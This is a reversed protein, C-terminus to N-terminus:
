HRLLRRYLPVSAVLMVVDATWIPFAPTLHGTRGLNIGCLMLPYYVLVIPLFCTIFASLYDSRSFWIGVPCGILVFCLCGLAFAPRMQMEVAIDRIEQDKQKRKNTLHEVHKKFNSPADGLAIVAKHSAIELDIKQREAQLQERISLMEQWTMDNPRNKGPNIFDAPLEIPWDSKEFIGNKEGNESNIRCNRMHLVIQHKAVDVSLTAEKAYATTDCRKSEPTAKRNFIADILRRGQVQKVYIEVSLKPHAIHGERRLLGYMFEEVDKLFKVRLLFHTQPIPRYYLYITVGSIFVGLLVGPWVVRLINIGAAKMALIENDHALRGYVV